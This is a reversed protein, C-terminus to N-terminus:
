SQQSRLRKPHSGPARHVHKVDTRREAPSVKCRRADPMPQQNYEVTSRERELARGAFRM